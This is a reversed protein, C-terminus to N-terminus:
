TDPTTSGPAFPHCPCACDGIDTAVCDQHHGGRCLLSLVRGGRGGVVVVEDLPLGALDLVRRVLPSPMVVFQRGTEAARHAAAALLGAGTMDLFGVQRADVVIRGSRAFCQTLADRFAPATAIDVEGIVTITVTGGGGDDAANSHWVQFDSM